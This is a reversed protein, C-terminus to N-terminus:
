GIGYVLSVRGDTLQQVKRLELGRRNQTAGFLAKGEGVLLPYLILRLEDVLGADILSATMRAGGMLYIDKGPQQKLAAIDELSRVFRTKPWAASTMTNSLVYHPTQEAFRAWELEAPTPLKGTMPLPKDPENQIASWYREYGAYMVSGLLCADIQPTLGYEESWADVWDAYGEPGEMKGDVSIKMGTILKRM